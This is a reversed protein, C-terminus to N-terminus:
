VSKSIDGEDLLLPLPGPRSPDPLPPQYHIPLRDPFHVRLLDLKLKTPPDKETVACVHYLVSRGEGVVGFRGRAETPVGM